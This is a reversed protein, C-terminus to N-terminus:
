SLCPPRVGAALTRSAGSGRYRKRLYERHGCPVAPHKGVPQEITESQLQEIDSPDTM